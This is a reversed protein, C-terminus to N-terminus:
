YTKYVNGNIDILYAFLDSGEIVSVINNYDNLREITHDTDESICIRSIKGDKYIIYFYPTGSNGVNIFYVSIVNDEEAILHENNDLDTITLHNNQDIRALMTKKTNDTGTYHYYYGFVGEPHNKALNDAFIAYSNTTPETPPTTPDNGPTEPQQTTLNAITQDKEANQAKLDSIESSKSNSTIIGYIGFALGGLALIACVVLAIIPLSPNTNPKPHPKATDTTSNILTQKQPQEM